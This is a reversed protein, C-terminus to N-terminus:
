NNKLPRCLESVTIEGERCGKEMRKVIATCFIFNLVHAAQM